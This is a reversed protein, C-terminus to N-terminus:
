YNQKQNLNSRDLDNAVLLCPQRLPVSEHLKKGVPRRLFDQLGVAAHVHGVRLLREAEVPRGEAGALLAGIVGRVEGDENAIQGGVDGIAHQELSEGTLVGGNLGRFDHEVGVRAAGLAVAKHPESIVILPRLGHSLHVANIARAPRHANTSGSWPLRRTILM